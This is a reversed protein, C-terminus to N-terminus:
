FTGYIKRWYDYQPFACSLSDHTLPVDKTQAKAALSQIRNVNLANGHFLSPPPGGIGQTRLRKRLKEPRM